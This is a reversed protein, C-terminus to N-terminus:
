LRPEIRSGKLGCTLWIICSPMNLQTTMRSVKCCIPYLPPFGDNFVIYMDKTRWLGDRSHRSIFGLGASLGLHIPTDALVQACIAFEMFNRSKDHGQSVGPGPVHFECLTTVEFAQFAADQVSKFIEASDRIDYQRVVHFRNHQLM